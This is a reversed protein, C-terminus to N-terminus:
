ARNYFKYLQGYDFPCDKVPRRWALKLAREDMKRQDNAIAKVLELGMRSLIEKLLVFPAARPVHVIYARWTELLTSEDPVWKIGAKKLKSDELHVDQLLEVVKEPLGRSELVSKKARWDWNIQLARTDPTEPLPAPQLIGLHQLTAVYIQRKNGIQSGFQDVICYTNADVTDCKVQTKGLMQLTKLVALVPSKAKNHRVLLLESTQIAECLAIDEASSGEPPSFMHLWKDAAHVHKTKETAKAKKVAQTREQSTSSSRKATEIAASATDRSAQLRQARLIKREDAQKQREAGTSYDTARRFTYGKKAALTEFTDLYASAAVRQEDRTYILAEDIWSTANTRSYFDRQIVDKLVGQEVLDHVNAEFTMDREDAVDVSAAKKTEHNQTTSWADGGPNIVLVHVKCINRCRALMQLMVRPVESMNVCILFAIGVQVQGDAGTTLRPTILWAKCKALWENLYAMQQAFQIDCSGSHHYMFPKPLLPLVFTDAFNKSGSAIYIRPAQTLLEQEEKREKAQEAQIKKREKALEAETATKPEEQQKTIPPLDEGKLISCAQRLATMFTEQLVHITLPPRKPLWSNHIILPISPPNCSTPGATRHPVNLDYIRDFGASGLSFRDSDSITRLVRLGRPSLDADLALVKNAFSLLIMFVYANRRINSNNTSRSLAQTVLSEFEDVIVLDYRPWLQNFLVDNHAEDALCLFASYLDDEDCDDPLQALREDVRDVFQRHDPTLKWLSEYQILLSKPVHWERLRGTTDHQIFWDPDCDNHGPFDYPLGLGQRLVDAMSCRHHIILLSHAEGIELPGDANLGLALRLLRRGTHTKGSGVDSIVAMSHHWKSIDLLRPEGDKEEVREQCLRVVTYDHRQEKLFAELEPKKPRPVYVNTKPHKVYGDSPGNKCDLLRCWEYLDFRGDPRTFSPHMSDSKNGNGDVFTGPPASSGRQKWQYWPIIDLRRQEYVVDYFYEETVEYELRPGEQELVKLTSIENIHRANVYGRFFQEQTINILGDGSVRLLQRVASAYGEEGCLEEFLEKQLVSLLHQSASHDLLWDLLGPIHDYYAPIDSDNCHDYMYKLMARHRGGLPHYVYRGEKYECYELLWTMLMRENEEADSLSYDCLLLAFAEM